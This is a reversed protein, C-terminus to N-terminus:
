AKLDNNSGSRAPGKAGNRLSASRIIAKWKNIGEGEGGDAADGGADGGGSAAGSHTFGGGTGPGAGAASGGPQQPQQANANPVAGLARGVLKEVDLELPLQSMLEAIRRREKTVRKILPNLLIFLFGAFIVWLLLFLIIHLLLISDFVGVITQFHLTEVDVTGDVLDKGGVNYLFDIDIDDLGVTANSTETVLNNVAMLFQQMVADLGTRSVQYYRYDPGPCPLNEKAVRHCNGSEYFLATLDPSAFSLGEKVLPFRETDNGSAQHAHEGLQLTYWTDRLIRTANHLEQRRLPMHELVDAAALEQAMFVTRYARASMLNAVSHIAVVEVVGGMKYVASIYFAIVLISWVVFPTLMIATDNSDYKLTRKSGSSPTSTGAGAGSRTGMSMSRPLLPQVSRGTKTFTRSFWSKIGSWCSPAVALSDSTQMTGYPPKRDSPPGEDGAGNGATPVVLSARRNAKPQTAGEAFGAVRKKKDDENGASATVKDRERDEEEEDDEDDDDGVLLATNQSALARTLGVPIVLFTGYLKYRQAAVARLLYALYCAAACSIAAGEVVLFVLQLTDVQKVSNVADYLLEELVMKQAYYLDPGSTLLLQGPTSKHIPQGADIWELAHQKLVKAMAYFRTAFDWTTLNIYEETGNENIGEIVPMTYHYLLQLVPSGPRHHGELIQNMRTKIKEANRDIRDVFFEADSRNYLNTASINRSIVDLSRVDTLIQHMFLQAEGSRGLNLMSDRKGEIAMVVLTFCVVHIIALLAVTILAHTRFRQQVQQAQGSDMLKVLKRFRKGRKYEAGGSASQASMASQGGESAADDDAYNGGGGGAGGGAPAAGTATTAGNAGSGFRSGFGPAGVPGKGAAGAAAAAQASGARDSMDDDSRRSADEEDDTKEANAVAVSNQYFAGQSAVWTSIRETGKPKGGGESDKDDQADEGDVSQMDIGKGAGNGLKAVLAEMEHIDDNIVAVVGGAPDAPVSGPLKVEASRRSAGPRARPGPPLGSDDGSGLLAVKQSGAQEGGVSKVLDALKSRGTAAATVGPVPLGGDGVGDLLMAPMAPLPVAAGGGAAAAAATTTEDEGSGRRRGPSGTGPPTALEVSADPTPLQLQPEDPTKLKLRPGESGRRPTLMLTDKEAAAAARPSGRSRLAASPAAMAFSPAAAPPVAAPFVPPPMAAPGMPATHLRLIAIVPENPGPKGVVQVDLLLPKGDTHTAQLVHVPGVKVAVDKQKTKLSSKKAGHLTLLDSPTRGPPITVLNSLLEHMLADHHLGFLLGAPRTHEELVSTIRGATDLQLVGTVAHLPWLDVYVRNGQGAAAAEDSPPEVYVQMIAPKAKSAGTAAAPGLVPTSVRGDGNTAAEDVVEWLGRGVVRNADLGLMHTAPGQSIASVLCDESVTLRVRRESLASDLSSRTLGIVHTSEGNLDGSTISVHMYLPRGTMTRLELTPQQAAKRCSWLSRTPPSSSTIDKLLRAHMDKWPAPLFDCLTFGTLLDAGFVFAGGSGLTNAGAVRAGVHGAVGGFRPGGGGGASVSDKLASALETSAHLIVGKRNVVLLQAPDDSALQLRVEHVPTENSGSPVITVRCPVPQSNYKHALLCELGASAGSNASATAHDVLRKITDSASETVIVAGAAEEDGGKAGGERLATAQVMMLATLNSGNVETGKWGFNAVFQPDAAAVIGNPSVWLCATNRPPPVPEMLAIFTSDEGVGSAKRLSLKVPFAVRDYHMGVVVIDPGQSQPGDSAKGEAEGGHISTVMGNNAVMEALEEAVRRACHPALLMALPKAELTGRKHGFLNHTQKNAMQIEGTANIVLVSTAMEDMRGLPTGDPLLPGRADGNKVEELRDAEAFYEAAGWPDNKITELFKGYLRILKPSTGYSELVVRYAAQAQSVSSEIKILAKSLHTFSVRSADLAKWFNCMAQLAERHLRVVMRQKRQYEVYGLLDMSAGDNAHSGAAKQTAQQQRVFMMFRCMLSPSLKRADEIRSAGSQSVGLVDIMFDAHLMVMYASGPFMALGAKIFSHAKKVAEPDLTYRDRWVRASRAVIEVDRPDDLNDCIDQLATEPKAAAMAQLATATMKRILFWSMVLGVGFAPALGALMTITMATSWSSLESDKVGPAFVLLMLTICCWVVLTSVGSKLYNVWAVLNPSWRLYQWALALSLALYVCAAVKRWGLFVDVLTLLAKIAFAMVEAGSHGLAMPRRSLPNVEVEAMNLLLAIVVFLLLFVASVVAHIIHPTAMCRYVPFLDMHMHPTVPGTFRCSFGLQLLNLSTVDFAQFFISSFVRLVKIPWVVPFKQEKFCWAVWVCLGINVVLLAVAMYLLALYGGYGLHTLWTFNLVGIVSWAAGTPDIDWGQKAPQIVTAFLQWGDLLIKLLVWRIRIRTESNEKSLTFLVGFIGNAM